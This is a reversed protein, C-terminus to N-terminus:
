DNAPPEHAMAESDARHQRRLSRFFVSDPRRGCVANQLQTRSGLGDSWPQTAGFAESGSNGRRCGALDSHWDQLDQGRYDLM